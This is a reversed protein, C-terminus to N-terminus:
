GTPGVRNPDPERPPLGGTVPQLALRPPHPPPATGTNESGSTVLTWLTYGLYLFAAVFLLGCAWGAAGAALEFM